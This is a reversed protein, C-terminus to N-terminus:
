HDSSETTEPTPELDPLDDDDTDAKKEEKRGEQKRHAIDVGWTRM